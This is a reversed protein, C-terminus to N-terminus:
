KNQYHKRLDDKKELLKVAELLLDDFDLAKDKKKLEEYKQWIKAMTETYHNGDSSKLFTNLDM